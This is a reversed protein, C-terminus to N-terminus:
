HKHFMPTPLKHPLSFHSNAALLPSESPSATIEAFPVFEAFIAFIIEVQFYCGFITSVDDSIM